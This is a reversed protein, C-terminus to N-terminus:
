QQDLLFWDYQSTGTKKFTGYAGGLQRSTEHYLISTLASPCAQIAKDITFFQYQPDELTWDVPDGNPQRVLQSVLLEQQFEPLHIGGATFLPLLTNLCEDYTRFQNIKQSNELINQLEELPKSIGNNHYQYEFIAEIARVGHDILDSFPIRIPDEPGKHQAAPMFYDVVFEPSLYILSENEETIVTRTDTISNYVVIERVARDFARGEGDQLKTMTNLHFELYLQNFYELNTVSQEIMADNLWIQCAGYNFYTFFEGEFEIDNTDTALAHKASLLKQEMEDALNLAALRGIHVDCNLTAMLKGYCASCIYGEARRPHTCTIPTKLYLRKGLLDENAPDVIIYEDKKPDLKAVRGELKQLMDFSKIDRIRFHQSDCEYDNDVYRIGSMLMCLSREFAGANSVMLKLVEAKRGGYADVMFAVPDKLGMIINTPSTMPITHDMLDPKYGMHVAFERFQGPNFLGNRAYVSIPLDTQASIIDLLDKTRKKNIQELEAPTCDDPIKYTCTMSEYAEQSRKAVELFDNNSISLGIRDGTKACFLNCLYKSWEILEGIKRNNGLPRVARIYEDLKAIWGDNTWRQPAWPKWNKLELGMCVPLILLTYNSFFQFLPLEFVEGDKAVRFRISQGITLLNNPTGYYTKYHNIIKRSNFEFDSLTHKYVNVIQNLREFDDLNKCESPSYLFIPHVYSKKRDKKRALPKIHVGLYEGEPVEYGVHESKAM